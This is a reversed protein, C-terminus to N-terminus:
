VSKHLMSKAVNQSETVCMKMYCVKPWKETRQRFEAEHLMSSTM